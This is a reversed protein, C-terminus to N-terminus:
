HTLDLCHHKLLPHFFFICVTLIRENGKKEAMFVAIISRATFVTSTGKSCSHLQICKRGQCGGGVPPNFGGTDRFAAAFGDVVDKFITWVGHQCGAPEGDCIFWITFTVFPALPIINFTPKEMHTHSPLPNLCIKVTYKCRYTVGAKGMVAYYENEIHGMQGGVSLLNLKTVCVCVTLLVLRFATIQLINCKCVFLYM